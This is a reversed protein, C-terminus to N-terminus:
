GNQLVGLMLEREAEFKDMVKHFFLDCNWSFSTTKETQVGKESLQKDVVDGINKFGVLKEGYFEGIEAKAISLTMYGMVDKSNRNKKDEKEWWIVQTKVNMSNIDDILKLIEDPSM